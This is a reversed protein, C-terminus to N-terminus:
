GGLSRTLAALHSGRPWPGRQGERAPRRTTLRWVEAGKFAPPPPTPPLESLWPATDTAIADEADEHHYSAAIQDRKREVSYAGWDPDGGGLRFSLKAQM